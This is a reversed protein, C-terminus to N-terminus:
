ERHYPHNHRIQQIRYIQEVLLVRVLMHPWTMKGFSLLCHSKNRLSQSIGDAGGIIFTCCKYFPEVTHTLLDAFAVTTLSKGREDLSIVYSDNRLLRQFNQGETEPTEQKIERIELHSTLRGQYRLILDKEPGNKMHGAALIILKM